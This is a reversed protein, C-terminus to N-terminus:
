RFFHEFESKVLNVYWLLYKLLPILDKVGNNSELAVTVICKIETKLLEVPKNTKHTIFIDGFKIIPNTYVTIDPPLNLDADAESNFKFCSSFDMNKPKIFTVHPTRHKDQNSIEHLIILPDIDPNGEVADNNRNFPQIKKILEFVLSSFQKKNKKGWDKIFKTENTYIPFSLSRENKPPNNYLKALSFALNDLSTRLNHIIEGTLIGFENLDHKNPLKDIILNYGLKNELYVTKLLMPNSDIWQSVSLSLDNIQKEARSLKLQITKLDTLM